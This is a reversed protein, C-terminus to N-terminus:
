IIGRAKAKAIIEQEIQVLKELIDPRDSKKTLPEHPDISKTSKLRLYNSSIEPVELLEGEELPIHKLCAM